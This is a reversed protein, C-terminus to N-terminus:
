PALRLVQWGGMENRHYEFRDHLRNERGQWFEVRDPILVYGGWHPPRPLVNESEFKKTYHDVKEEIYHRDPVPQSQPSAWAGIQSGRPRSQFYETSIAEPLREVKGEIRVQRELEHWFFVLAAYPNALLQDGKRSNYNTFFTFGGEEIGKLLVVRASPRGAEDATALTMANSERLGAAVAEEFWQGFQWMPDPDIVSRELRTRKYNERMQRLKENM